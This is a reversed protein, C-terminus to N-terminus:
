AVAQAARAAAAIPVVTPNFAEYILVREGSSLDLEYVRGPASPPILGFQERTIGYGFIHRREFLGLRRIHLGFPTDDSPIITSRDTDRYVILNESVIHGTQDRLRSHRLALHAYEYPHFVQSLHTSAATESDLEEGPVLEVHLRSAALIQLLVTTSGDSELIMRTAEPLNPFTDFEPYAYM